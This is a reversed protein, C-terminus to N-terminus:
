KYGFSHESLEGSTLHWISGSKIHETTIQFREFEEGFRFKQRTQAGTKETQQPFNQRIQCAISCCFFFVGESM